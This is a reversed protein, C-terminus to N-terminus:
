PLTKIPTVAGMAPKVTVSIGQYPPSAGLLASAYPSPAMVALGDSADPGVHARVVVQGSKSAVQVAAGEKVGLRQADRTSLSVRAVAEQYARSLTGQAAVAADVDLSRALVLKLELAPYLYERLGM